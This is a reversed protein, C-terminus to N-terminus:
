QQQEESSAAQAPAHHAAAQTPASTTTRAGTPRLSKAGVLKGLNGVENEHGTRGCVLRQALSTVAGALLAGGLINIAYFRTPV